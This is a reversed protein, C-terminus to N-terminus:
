FSLYNNRRRADPASSYARQWGGRGRRSCRGALDRRLSRRRKAALKRAIVVELTMAAMDAKLFYSRLDERGIHPAFSGTAEASAIDAKPLDVLGNYHGGHPALHVRGEVHGQDLGDPAGAIGEARGGSRRQDSVERRAHRKAAMVLM